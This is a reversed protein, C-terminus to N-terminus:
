GLRSIAPVEVLHLELAQRTPDTPDGTVQGCRPCVRDAPSEMPLLEGPTTGLGACLDMFTSISPEVHGNEYRSLRHKPIGTLAELNGQSLGRNLRAERLRRGLTGNTRM